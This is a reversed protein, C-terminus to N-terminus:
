REDVYEDRQRFPAYVQVGGLIDRRADSTASATSCADLIILVRECVKTRACSQRNFATRQCAAALGEAVTQAFVRPAQQRAGRLFDPRLRLVDICGPHPLQLPM